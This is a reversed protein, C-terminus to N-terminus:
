EEQQIKRPRGRSRLTSQLDLRRATREQWAPEGYPAGRVVSRRLAELENATEARNVYSVWRDPRALPWPDLTPGENAGRRHYLSGWPWVEARDVLGARLANREVYRCVGFLHEDEQVPFSQFRGQYLSGSGSTHYHAHWRQVHTVTVWRLYESLDGDRRPWLVLHWHNPMLCFGLLRMPQREAGERLIRLFAAYDGDKEFIAARAVARNLVHYVFGGTSFRLRRPM